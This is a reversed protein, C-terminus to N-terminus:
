RGLGYGWVYLLVCDEIDVEINVESEPIEEREFTM